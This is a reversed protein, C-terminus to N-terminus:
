SQKSDTVAFILVWPKGYHISDIAVKKKYFTGNVEVIHQPEEWKEIKDTNPAGMVHVLLLVAIVAVSKKLIEM